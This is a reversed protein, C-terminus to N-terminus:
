FTTSVSYVISLINSISSFNPGLMLLFEWISYTSQFLPQLYLFKDNKLFIIVNFFNWFIFWHNLSSYRSEFIPKLKRFKPCCCFELKGLYYDTKRIKNAYYWAKYFTMMCNSCIKHPSMNQMVFKDYSFSYNQAITYRIHM